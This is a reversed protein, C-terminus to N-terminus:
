LLLISLHPSVYWYKGGKCITKDWCDKEKLEMFGANTLKTRVSDVAHFPDRSTNLFAVCDKARNIVEDQRNIEM